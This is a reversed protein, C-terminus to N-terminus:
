RASSTGRTGVRRGRHDVGVASTAGAVEAVDVCVALDEDDVPELLDDLDAGVLDGWGLELRQEDRV